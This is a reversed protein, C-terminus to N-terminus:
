IALRREGRSFAAAAGMLAIWYSRPAPMAVLDVLGPEPVFEEACLM